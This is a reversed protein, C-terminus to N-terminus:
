PAGNASPPTSAIARWAFELWAQRVSTLSQDALIAPMRPGMSPVLDLIEMHMRAVFFAATRPNLDPRLDGRELGQQLIGVVSSIIPHLLAAVADKTADSGQILQGRFLSRFGADDGLHRHFVELASWLRDRTTLTCAPDALRSLAEAIPPLRRNALALFLAEKNEFHYYILAPDCGALRAIARISAAQLGAQSFVEQAADLIRSTDVREPRPGRPHRAPKTVM